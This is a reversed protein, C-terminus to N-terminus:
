SDDLVFVDVKALQFLLLSKRGEEVEKVIDDSSNDSGTIFHYFSAFTFNKFIRLKGVDLTCPWFVASTTIESRETFM